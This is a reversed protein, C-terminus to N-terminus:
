GAPLEKKVRAVLPAWAHRAPQRLVRVSPYWAMRESRLGYRWEPAYPAMVVVPQGLAGALHVIATCVTVTHDLAALLAATEDYDDIADQWHHFRGGTANRFAEIEEARADYQLSVWRVGPVELLSALDELRPSRLHRRSKDTGGRWSIGVAPGGLTDIRARWRRVKEADAQLYAGREPFDARTRRFRSPLSGVEIYREIGADRAAWDLPEFQTGARVEVTPFSRRYIPALKPHAELVIEAGARVLDPICSAFMIEDGLGQEALVLLRGSPLAQETWRPVPVSRQPRAEDMLRVEYDPWAEEFRGVLLLALSRHWRATADSPNVALARDYAEIAEDARGLEQLAVGLDRHLDAGGGGAAGARGFCDIAGEADLDLKLRLSGLVEHAASCEPDAALLAACRRRVEEAAGPLRVAIAGLARLAEPFDPTADLSRGFCRAAEADRRRRLQLLGLNYWAGASAGVALSREYAEEAADFDGMLLLVNGIDARVAASDELAAARRFAALAEAHSGCRALVQGYLRLVPAGADPRSAVPRITALAALPAGSELQRRAEEFRPDEAGAAAPPPAPTRVGQALGRILKRLM